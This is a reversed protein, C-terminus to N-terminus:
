ARAGVSVGRRWALSDENQPPGRTEAEPAPRLLLLLLPPRRGDAGVVGEEEEAEGMGDAKRDM